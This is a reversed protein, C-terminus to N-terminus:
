RIIEELMDWLLKTPLGMINYFSGEVYEIGIYGIWEQIGYAGAKDMPKYRDLYYTIEEDTLEKFKVLTTKHSTLYKGKRMVTLGSVVTHEKGSLIKLIRVADAEDKPKGIINGSSVVITDCAIFITNASYDNERVPSLKLRSLYEAIEVPSLGEPYYEEVDLPLYEYDIDMGTMLQHRRPSKSALYIKYSKLDNILM